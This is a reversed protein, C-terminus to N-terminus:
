EQESEQKIEAERRSRILEEREAEKRQIVQYANRLSRKFDRTLEGATALNRIVHPTIFFILEFRRFNRSSQGFLAGMIPIDGLLPVRSRSRDYQDSIIGGIALTQGDRVIVSTEVYNRNITPTLSPGTASSVEIALDMTVIGSASIRPLILLTTGTPRFQISNVFAGASGSRLPDGFSSTTVPVEAGVNITAQMGDLAMLRPAEILQVETHTRLANILWEIQRGGGVFARTFLSLAGGPSDGSPATIRATTAPGTTITPTEGGPPQVTVGGRERLFWSVGFSLDDRLEVAFIQAELIVQRPLIDLQRITQLLFQYDAETSQIILSNNFENVIIRVNGAVVARVGVQQTMPRGTLSPGLESRIGAMPGRQNPPLFGAEQRPRSLEQEVQALQGEPSEGSPLGTGGEYLKALVEAINTATVNEVEYVFTKVNSGSAPADLREIWKEVERLVQPAHTVVLISNLREMAVFRVGGAKDGPAFVKGLDEAVDSAQNYRIPILDVTNLDFYQTDLLDVLNLVQEINRRYDTIILMNASVFDIVTASETVFTQTMTVMDSSNVYYLPIIYTIVGREGEIQAAQESSTVRIIRPGPELPPTQAASEAPEEQLGNEPYRSSEKEQKKEQDEESEEEQGRKEQTPEAGAPEAPATPKVLIQHPIKPSRAIPVIVYFDRQRIIAHGNMKLIQELVEFLKDRAIGSGRPTYLNVSGTVQPDIVYAYGLEGMISNIVSAIPANTFELALPQAKSSPPKQSTTPKSPPKVAAPKAQSSPRSDAAVSDKGPVAETGQGKGGQLRQRYLAELHHIQQNEAEQYTNRSPRTPFGVIAPLEEQSPSTGDRKTTTSLQYVALGSVMEGAAGEAFFSLILAISLLRM